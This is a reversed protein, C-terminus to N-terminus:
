KPLARSVAKALDSGHLDEAIIVGNTDLLFNSPVDRVGYKMALRNEGGEGDVIQPWTVNNAKVFDAVKQRDEDLDVSIMDFGRGHYKKHLAALAPIAAQCSPNGTECFDILVVKGKHDALSLPKGDLDQASFAPFATGPVLGARIKKAAADAADEQELAAVLHTGQFESKLQKMLAAAKPQDDFVESYLTAKMFVIEAVADTKQGKYKSLLVDFQKLDDSLQFETTKGASIDAKIKQMLSQLDAAPDNTEAASVPSGALIMAVVLLLVPIEIRM